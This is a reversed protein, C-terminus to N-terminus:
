LYEIWGRMENPSLAEYILVLSRIIEGLSSLNKKCFAVGWHDTNESALRLFDTDHTVIVRGQECAFALQIEDTQGLLEMEPTTTVDIGQRRLALAIDLDINEDLHFQIRDSM